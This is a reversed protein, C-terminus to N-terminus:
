FYCFKIDYEDQNVTDWNLFRSLVKAQGGLANNLVEILTIALELCHDLLKMQIISKFQIM